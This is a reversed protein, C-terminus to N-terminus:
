PVQAPDGNAVAAAGSGARLEIGTGAGDATQDDTRRRRLRGKAWAARSQVQSPVPAANRLHAHRGGAEPASAELVAGAIGMGAELVAGDIGHRSGRGGAPGSM